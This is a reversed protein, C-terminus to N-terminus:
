WRIGLWYAAMGCSAFPMSALFGTEPQSARGIKIRTWPSGCCSDDKCIGYKRKAINTSLPIEGETDTSVVPLTDCPSGKLPGLRYNPCNPVGFNNHVPLKLSHQKFNCGKGRINPDNIVHLSRVANNASMYIKGDPANQLMFFTTHFPDRNGDFTDIEMRTPQFQELSMDYQMLKTGLSLYLLKSNPSFAVGCAPYLGQYIDQGIWTLEGSCRNFSYVDLYVTFNPSLGYFSCSAYMSGDQSFTSQGTNIFTRIGTSVFDSEFVSDKTILLRRFNSPAIEKASLAWWDRGNGHKVACVQGNNLTDVIIKKEKLVVKGLGNNQDMDVETMRLDPSILYTQGNFIFGITTQHL